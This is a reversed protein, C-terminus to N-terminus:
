FPGDAAQTRPPHLRLTPRAHESFSVHLFPAIGAFTIQVPGLCLFTASFLRRIGLQSHSQLSAPNFASIRSFSWRVGEAVLYRNAADWLRAFSRGIRFDPEVYVDYDWASQEPRALEYRCRVEDEDYAGRALWLFGSFREGSHAALCLNGDCFRKRIVVPPRPFSAVLPDGHRIFTVLSNASARLKSEAKPPVPQAVLYYRLLRARHGSLTELGRAVLYLFGDLWGLEAFNGIIKKLAM